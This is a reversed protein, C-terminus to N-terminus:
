LEEESPTRPVVIEEEDAQEQFSSLDIIQEDNLNFIQESYLSDDQAQQAAEEQKRYFEAMSMPYTALGVAFFDLMSDGIAVKGYGHEGWTEGWVNEIIWSAGTDIGSTEWGLVKM